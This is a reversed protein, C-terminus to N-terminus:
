RSAEQSYFFDADQMGQIFRDSQWGADHYRRSWFTKQQEIPQRHVATAEASNERLAFYVQTQSPNHSRRMIVRGGPACYTERLSSDSAIRPVFWYALHIGVPRYPNEAPPLLSTRIHSGQGDAAILLDFAGTTGDCFRARVRHADQEFGDVGAGFQFRAHHRTAEYLVRVLDGRMIEYESTMTQRGKGSTNAMVTGWRRGRADVFAVGPGDVRIGRVADLLGMRDIADIGQGRLDIQAGAARLHPTHEAVLVEHGGYQLWYAAALGAIGGGCILIKM